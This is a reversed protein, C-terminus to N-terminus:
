GVKPLHRLSEKIAAEPYSFDELEGAFYRDYSAMDFYGHGTLNFLLTKAEGTEKCRLAEDIVARIAHNLVNRRRIKGSGTNNVANGPDSITIACTTTADNHTSAGM